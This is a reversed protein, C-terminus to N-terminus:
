FLHTGSDPTIWDAASPNKKNDRFFWASDKLIGHIRTDPVIAPDKM